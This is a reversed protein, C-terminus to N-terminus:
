AQLENYVLIIWSPAVGGWFPILEMGVCLPRLWKSRKAWETAKSITKAAGSTVKLSRSRFFIWGGIFIIGIIDTAGCDDLGVCFLIVGTLDLLIALLMMIVGEPSLLRGMRGTDEAATEEEPEEETTEEEGPEKPEKKEEPTTTTEGTTEEPANNKALEEAM